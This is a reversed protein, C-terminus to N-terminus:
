LRPNKLGYPNDKKNDREKDREKYREKDREEMFCFFSVFCFPVWMLGLIPLWSDGHFCVLYVAPGLMVSIALVAICGWKVSKLIIEM